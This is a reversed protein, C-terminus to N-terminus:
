ARLYRSTQANWMEAYKGNQALLSAHNGNEAVMGKELLFITDAVRTTSLRHSIFIMTKESGASTVAHNFRYEAIPDLASSPEDLIILPSDKYFARAIAVKQAEGGSLNVGDPDFETTLPQALGLPLTALRDAFGAKKLAPLVDPAPSATPTHLERWEDSASYERPPFEVGGRSTREANATHGHRHGGSPAIDLLVNEEVTAAFIKYDQFIVGIAHRYEQPDFLKINTGNVLIEGETPEYLRMILKVLTSKGAGNYGVIAIKEGPHIKMNVNRLVYPANETYRFSINRLEIEATSCFASQVNRGDEASVAPANGTTQSFESKLVDCNAVFKNSVDSGEWVIQPQKELFVNIREVYRSIDALETITQAMRGLGNRMTRGSNHFVAVSGLQIRQLVVASYVLYLMYLGGMVFNSFLYDRLWAYLTLRPVYKKEIARLEDNVATHESRLRGVVARNLRLEKAYDPLYFVRNVYELKRQVPNKELRMKFKLKNAATEVIFLLFFSGFIFVISIPDMFIFFAGMLLMRVVMGLFEGMTGLVRELQNDSENIALVYDNFFQPNDFSELDLERAKEFLKERLRQQVLPRAKPEYKQLFYANSSLHAAEAVLLAILFIAAHYFPRGQEVVSFVFQFAITHEIFIMVQNRIAEFLSWITYLPAARFSIRILFWSNRLDKTFFQKM